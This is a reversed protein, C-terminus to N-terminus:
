NDLYPLVEIEPNYTQMLQKIEEFKQDVDMVYLDKADVMPIVSYNDFEPLGLNYTPMMRMKGITVNKNKDVKFTYEWISGIKNDLGNQGSLFNGHSYIAAQSENWIVGPQLVHPHGGLVFNAGANKCIQFINEQFQSPYSEYEEGSHVMVITVDAFKKLRKIELDILEEDILTALYAEDEPLYNGNLGYTYALFGVKVGDVEIIRPTNYDDWSQYSGVSMMKKANLKDLSLHAGEPGRDMTHNTANNVIDIGVGKLTDIIESPANFLPYTSVGIEDGAAITEMNATSIDANEIYPKVAKFMKDFNYGNETQGNYYVGDHLLVDGISRVTIEVEKDLKSQEITTEEVSDRSNSDIQDKSLNTSHCGVLLFLLIILVSFKYKSQDRKM